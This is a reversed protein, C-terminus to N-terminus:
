EKVVKITASKGELTELTLFYIGSPTSIDLVVNEEAEFEQASVMQGVINRLSLTLPASKEPLDIHIIGNTPNPYASFAPSLEINAKVSTSIVCQNACNTSFSASSDVNVWNTTSYAVDDVEVCTLNPNNSIQVGIMNANNGNKMNLCELKNSHCVLETLALNKSLDLNTLNNSSCDLYTLATNRSVNLSKLSKFKCQLYTLAAFDEIGVLSTIGPYGAILETVTDINATPFVEM